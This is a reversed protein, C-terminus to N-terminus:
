CTGNRCLYIQLWADGVGRCQDETGDDHGWYGNDGYDDDTYGIAINGPFFNPDGAGVSFMRSWGGDDGVLYNLFTLTQVAGPIQIQGHYLQASNPGTPNVYRKWTKGRGGTQVCGGARIFVADNKYVTIPLETRARKVEPRDICILHPDGNCSFTIIQQALTPSAALALGAGILVSGIRLSTNDM